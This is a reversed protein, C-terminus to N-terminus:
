RAALRNGGEGALRLRRSRFAFGLDSDCCVEPIDSLSTPQGKGHMFVDIIWSHVWSHQLLAAIAAVIRWHMVADM